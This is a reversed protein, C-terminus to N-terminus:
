DGRGEKVLEVATKRSIIMLPIEGRRRKEELSRIEEEAPRDKEMVKEVEIEMELLREILSKLQYIFSSGRV